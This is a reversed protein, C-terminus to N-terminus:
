KTNKLGKLTKAILLIIIQLYVHIQYFTKLITNSSIIFAYLLIYSVLMDHINLCKKIQTKVRYKEAITKFQM